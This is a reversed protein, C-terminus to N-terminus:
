CTSAHQLQRHPIRPYLYPIMDTRETHFLTFCMEKLASDVGLINCEWEPMLEPYGKGMLDSQCM